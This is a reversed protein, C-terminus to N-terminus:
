HFMDSKLDSVQTKDFFSVFKPQRTLPLLRICLKPHFLCKTVKTQFKTYTGMLDSLVLAMLM